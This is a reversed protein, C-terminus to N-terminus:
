RKFEQGCECKCKGKHTGWNRKSPSLRMMANYNAESIPIGRTCEHAILTEPCKSGSDRGPCQNNIM